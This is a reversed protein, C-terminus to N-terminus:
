NDANLSHIFAPAGLQWGSSGWIAMTRVYKDCQGPPAM